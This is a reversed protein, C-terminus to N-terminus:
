LREKENDKKEKKDNVIFIIAMTIVILIEIGIIALVGCWFEPIYM